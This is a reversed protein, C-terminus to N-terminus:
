SLKTLPVLTVPFAGPERAWRQSKAPWARKLAGASSRSSGHAIWRARTKRRANACSAAHRRVTGGLFASPPVRRMPGAGRDKPAPVRRM